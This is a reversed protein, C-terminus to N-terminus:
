NNHKLYLFKESICNDEGNKRKVLERHTAKLDSIIYVALFLGCLLKANRPLAAIWGYCVPHLLRAFLINLLGWLISYFLSIGGMFNVRQGSYDWWKVAYVKQSILYFALEVASVTFFGNAFLLLPNETKGNVAWLALTAIGYVPCLPLNILTRKSIYKGHLAYYYANELVCGFFSYLVFLLFVEM